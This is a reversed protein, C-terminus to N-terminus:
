FHGHETPDGCACGAPQAVGHSDLLKEGLANIRDQILQRITIARNLVESFNRIQQIAELEVGQAEALLASLGVATKEAAVAPSTPTSSEQPSLPESLPNDMGAAERQNLEALRALARLDGARYGDVVAPRSEATDVILIREGLVELVYRDETPEQTEESM